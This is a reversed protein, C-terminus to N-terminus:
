RGVKKLKEARRTNLPTDGKDTSAALSLDLSSGYEVLTQHATMADERLAQYASGDNSSNGAEGSINEDKQDGKRFASIAVSISRQLKDLAGDLNDGLRLLEASLASSDMNLDNSTNVGGTPSYEKKMSDNLSIEEPHNTSQVHGKRPNSTSSIVPHESPPASSSELDDRTKSNEVPHPSEDGQHPMEDDKDNISDSGNSESPLASGDSEIADDMAVDGNPLPHATIEATNIAAPPPSSPVPSSGPDMTVETTAATDDSSSSSSMTSDITTSSNDVPSPMM